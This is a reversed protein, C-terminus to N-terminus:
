VYLFVICFGLWGEGGWTVSPTDLSLIPIWFQEPVEDSRISGAIRSSMARSPVTRYMVAFVGDARESTNASYYLM